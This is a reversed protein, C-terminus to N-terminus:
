DLGSLVQRPHIQERKPRRLISKTQAKIVAPLFFAGACASKNAKEAFKKNV